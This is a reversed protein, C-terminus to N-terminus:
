QTTEEKKMKVIYNNAISFSARDEDAIQDILAFDYDIQGNEKVNERCSIFSDAMTGFYAIIADCDDWYKNFNELTYLRQGSRSTITGRYTLGLQELAKEANKANKYELAIVTPIDLISKGLIGIRHWLPLERMHFPITPRINRRIISLISNNEPEAYNSIPDDIIENIMSESTIIVNGAGRKTNIAIRNAAINITFMISTSGEFASMYGRQELVVTESRSSVDSVTNWFADAWESRNDATATTEPVELKKIDLRLRENRNFVLLYHDADLTHKENLINTISM